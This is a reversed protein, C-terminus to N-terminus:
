EYRRVVICANHGGFGFSNSLAIRIKMDRATNPCYDLDCEDGPEDLNATPPVVSQQMGRITAILEVGGSAGLSHGMAGKTSTVVLKRAWDGFVSKIARTEAVDGLPTATAHANIYDIQDPSIHADALAKRMAHAAGDGSELPQTLHEADSTAGVGLVEASIAAGRRRAHEYDEFILAGAGESMVFGDRDRDFPRSAKEPDDNRKSLAKMSTFAAVALKTMAAESGGTFVIDAEGRRIMNTAKGMAHAASACASSVAVSEGKAGFAISINGSAANVMLKPITFASVRHPGKLMLRTFQDELEKMGGIGSGFVVAMRHPDIKESDIGSAKFAEETAIMALQAYRDLRKALKRDLYDTPEIGCEGGIRVDFDDTPFLTIPGIGSRANVVGDWLSEVSAGYPTVAGMGTIVVRREAM